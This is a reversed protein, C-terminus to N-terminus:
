RGNNPPANNPRDPREARDVIPMTNAQINTTVDIMRVFGIIGDVTRIQWFDERINKGIIEIPTGNELRAITQSNPHASDEVQAPRDATIIGNTSSFSQVATPPPARRTPPPAILQTSTPSPQPTTSVELARQTLQIPLATQTQIIPANTQTQQIPLATLTQDSDRLVLLSDGTNANAGGLALLILPTAIALLIIGGFVISFRGSRQRTTPSLQRTTDHPAPVAQQEDPTDSSEAPNIAHTDIKNQTQQLAPTNIANKLAQVMDMTTDYRDKPRKMLGRLLVANVPEPLNANVDTPTPPTESAHKHIVSLTDDGTFPYYGTLLLYAMVSFAYVDSRHDAPLGKIQEPSIYMPTGAIQGTTTLRTADAIHAIGFDSLHAHQNDDLLINQLKLDRHIVGQTHAYDLASAIETLLHIVQELTIHRPQEFYQELTHGQMYTMAIYIQNDHEGFDVVPVIYPHKLESAVQAERQFRKINTEDSMLHPYLVKLAVTETTQTHVAKYVIAMGGRGLEDIVHYQGFDFEQV